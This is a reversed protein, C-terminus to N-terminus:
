LGRKLILVISAWFTLVQEFIWTPFQLISFHKIEYSIIRTNRYDSKPVKGLRVGGLYLICRRVESIFLEHPTWNCPLRNDSEGPHYVTDPSYYDRLVLHNSSSQLMLHLFSPFRELILKCLYMYNYLTFLSGSIFVLLKLKM